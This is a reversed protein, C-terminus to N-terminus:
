STVEASHLPLGASLPLAPLRRAGGAGDGRSKRLQGRRKGRRTRCDLNGSHAPSVVGSGAAGKLAFRLPTPAGEHRGPDVGFDAGPSGRAGPFPFGRQIVSRSLGACQLRERVRPVNASRRPATRKPKRWPMTSLRLKRRTLMLKDLRALESQGKPA